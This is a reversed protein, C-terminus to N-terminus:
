RDLFWQGPQGLKDEINEILYRHDAKFGNAAPHLAEFATPGTLYITHTAAEVCAIRMKAAGYQEFDVLEIDGSPATSVNSFNKCADVAHDPTLNRWSSSIPDSADYIFRDLCLFKGKHPGEAQAPSPCRDKVEADVYVADEIRLYSGM